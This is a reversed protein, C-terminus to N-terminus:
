YYAHAAVCQAAVRDRNAEVNSGTFVVLPDTKAAERAKTQNLCQTALTTRMMAVMVMMMMMLSM